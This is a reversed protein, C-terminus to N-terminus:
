IAEELTAFSSQQFISLRLIQDVKDQQDEFEVDVVEVGQFLNEIDDQEENTDCLFTDRFSDKPFTM